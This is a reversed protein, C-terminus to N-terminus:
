PSYRKARRSAIPLLASFSRPIEGYATASLRGSLFWLDDFRNHVPGLGIGTPRNKGGPQIDGEPPVPASGGRARRHDGPAGGDSRIIPGMSESVCVDQTNNPADVGCYVRGSRQAERDILYDNARNRFKKFDPGAQPEDTFRLPLTRGRHVNFRWVNEDDAPV